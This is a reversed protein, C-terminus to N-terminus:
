RSVSKSSIVIGLGRKIVAEITNANLCENVGAIIRHISEYVHSICTNNPGVDLIKMKVMSFLM